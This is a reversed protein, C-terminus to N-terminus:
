LSIDKKVHEVEFKRSNRSQTTPWKGGGDYGLGKSPLDDGENVRGPGVRRQAM